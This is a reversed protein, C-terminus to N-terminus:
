VRRPPKEILIRYRTKPVINTVLFGNFFCALCKAIACGHQSFLQRRIQTIRIEQIGNKTIIDVFSCVTGLFLVFLSLCGGYFRIPFFVAVVFFLPIGSFLDFNDLGFRGLPFFPMSARSRIWRGQGNYGTFALANTTHLCLIFGSCGSRIVSPVIVLARWRRTRRTGWWWM